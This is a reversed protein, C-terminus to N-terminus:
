LTVWHTPVPTFVGERRWWLRPATNVAEEQAALWAGWWSFSSNATVHHRCLTMLHMDDVSRAGSNWDVFLTEAEEPLSPLHAKCWAVDDSFICFLRAGTHQRIHRIAEAYYGSACLDHFMPNGVYDTRRVHVAVAEESKLRRALSLNAESDFAPFRFRDLLASRCDRFYDEHQWYGDYYTSGLRSVAEPDVAFDRSEVCMTRRRPLLRSGIRWSQFDPYPYAVRAVDGYSASQVQIGFIDALQFQRRYGRFTHLDAMVAADPHHRQLATYLAYQFMQNGLGGLIKVIKVQQKM